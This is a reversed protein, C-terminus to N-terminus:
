LRYLLRIIRRRWTRTQVTVEALEPDLWLELDNHLLAPLGLLPLRPAIPLADGGYVAIGEPVDLLYPRRDGAVIRTGPVNPYLWVTAARRPVIRDSIISNGLFTLLNSNIGSWERLHRDQISFAANNGTDILAPIIPSNSKSQIVGALDIGVWILIQNRKIRAYRDGFREETRRGPIPLRHLIKTM